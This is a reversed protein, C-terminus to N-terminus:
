RMPWPIQRAARSLGMALFGTAIAAVAAVSYVLVPSTWRVLMVVAAFFAVGGLSGVVTGGLLGRAAESGDQRHTFAATIAAVIPIPALLGAAEPGLYRAAATIGLVVVTAAVMRVPLDWRPTGAAAGTRGPQGIVVALGALGLTVLAVAWGLPIGAALSLAATVAICAAYASGLALGWSARKAVLAYCVCFVGTALFGLLTGRAADQAFRRGYEVLLVVSVPGSLLPLGMLWGSFAAGWKKTAMACGAALLPTFLVRLVIAAV